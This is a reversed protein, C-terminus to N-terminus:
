PLSLPYLPLAHCPTFSVQSVNGFLRWSLTSLYCVAFGRCGSVALRTGATNLSAFRMPFNQRVYSHPVPFKFLNRCCHLFRRVCLLISDPTCLLTHLHNDATPNLVLASKALNFIMLFVGNNSEWDSGADDSYGLQRDGVRSDADLEAKMRSLNNAIQRRTSLLQNCNNLLRDRFEVLNARRAQRDSDDLFYAVTWLRFGKLTWCFSLSCLHRTVETQDLLTTYLLNGFVSWLAFGYARWAVALCYGDLSWALTRVAGLPKEM